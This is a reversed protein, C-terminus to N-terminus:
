LLAGSFAGIGTGFIAGFMAGDLGSTIVWDGFAQGTAEILPYSVMVIAGSLAGSLLGLFVGRMLMQVVIIRMSNPNATGVPGILLGVVIAAVLTLGVFGLMAM